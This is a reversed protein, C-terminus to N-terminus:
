PSPTKVPNPAAAATAAIASDIAIAKKSRVWSRILALSLANATIRPVSTREAPTSHRPTRTARTLGVPRTRSSDDVAAQRIAMRTCDRVAHRPVIITNSRASRAASALCPRGSVTDSVRRATELTASRQTIAL